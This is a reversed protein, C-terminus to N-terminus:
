DTVRYLRRRDPAGKLEHEGADEFALGSGATLDKVTSSTWVEGGDALASIRAGIAVGVGGDDEGILEIEGTHVGARVELGLLRVAEGIAIACRVARAPGDFTALVSDGTSKVLQGSARENEGRVVDDHRALVGRWLADGLESARETSGVIDTFPM